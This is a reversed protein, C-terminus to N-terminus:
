DLFFLIWLMAVIFVIWLVFLLFFEVPNKERFTPRFFKGYIIGSKLGSILNLLLLVSLSIVALIAFLEVVEVFFLYHILQIDIL